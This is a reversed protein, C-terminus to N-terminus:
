SPWTTTNRREALSAEVATTIDASLAGPTRDGSARVIGGLRNVGFQQGSM